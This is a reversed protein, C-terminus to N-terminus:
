GLMFLRLRGALAFAQRLDALNEAGVGQLEGQDIAYELTHKAYSMAGELKQFVGARDESTNSAKAGRLIGVLRSYSAIYQSSWPTSASMFGPVTEGRMAYEAAFSCCALFDVRVCLAATRIERQFRALAAGSINTQGPRVMLGRAAAFDGTRLASLM